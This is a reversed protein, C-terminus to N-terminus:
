AKVFAYTGKAAGPEEPKIPTPNNLIPLEIMRQEESGAWFRSRYFM